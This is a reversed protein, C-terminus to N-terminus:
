IRVINRNILGYNVLVCLLALLCSFAAGSSVTEGLKKNNDEM